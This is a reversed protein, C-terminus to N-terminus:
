KLQHKKRLEKIFPYASYLKITKLNKPLNNIRLKYYRFLILHELNKLTIDNIDINTILELM